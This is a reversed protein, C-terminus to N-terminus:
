LKQKPKTMRERLRREREMAAIAMAEAVTNLLATIRALYEEPSEGPKRQLQAFSLGLPSSNPPLPLEGINGGFNVTPRDTDTKGGGTGFLGSFASRYTGAAAHFDKVIASRHRTQQQAYAFHQNLKSFSFQRDIKSGSFEFDNKSFLVGQKRDTNGCYKYRVDIGQEKLRDELDNWSKCKPLWGKIADYIEYKTKDLERLRKRQVSDKGPALHLGYKRELKRLIEMSRRAEFDHPLKRGQEDVRLSVIHLHERSIDKHKFVIYPQNGYGMREMYERAIDRLQDETLKDEPLPNLSAHFVTNTTRRNAELYPMFSEMCADIDLRGYRDFPELMKQRFLVEAEGKDVKEKNYYM